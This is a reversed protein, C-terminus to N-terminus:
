GLQGAVPPDASAVGFAVVGGVLIGAVMGLIWLLRAPRIKRQLPVKDDTM